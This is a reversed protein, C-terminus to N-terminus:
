KIRATEVRAQFQGIVDAAAGKAAEAQGPLTFMVIWLLVGLVALSLIDIM